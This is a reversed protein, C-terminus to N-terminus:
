KQLQQIQLQQIQEELQKVKSHEQRLSGQLRVVNLNFINMRSFFFTTLPTKDEVKSLEWSILKDLQGSPIKSYVDLLPGSNTKMLLDYIAYKYAINERFFAFRDLFKDLLTIGRFFFEGWRHFREEASLQNPKTASDQRDRYVYHVTPTLVFNKALCLLYLSFVSDECVKYDPFELDNQMVFDRRVFNTYSSWDFKDSSFIKVREALNETFLTPKTVFDTKKMAMVQFGKHGSLTEDQTSLFKECHVVEADFDKAVKYLEKLASKTIADDSDVFMLYEGHSLRMGVNRPVGPRGGSNAPSKVLRLRDVGSVRFKPIYSEVIAASNDTSCDDVVIVEYDEFTQGLVSDLCEDIYKEMNYMPIIVSVAPINKKNAM